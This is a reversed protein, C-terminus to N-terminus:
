NKADTDSQSENKDSNEVKQSDDENNGLAWDYMHSLREMKKADSRKKLKRIIIVLAVIVAVVILGVIVIKVIPNQPKPMDEDIPMEGEDPEPAPPENVYFKLPVEISKKEANADEYKVKVNASLDGPTNPTLIIDLSGNAGSMCNGVWVDNSLCDFGEGEIKAVINSTVAKGKNVYPISIYMEEGVTGDDIMTPPTIEFRDPQVVPISIAESTTGKVISKNNRYEYNFNITLIAAASKAEEWAKMSIKVPLSKGVGLKDFYFSNSSSAISIGEGTNLSMVINEVSINKSTNKFHLSLDFESGAEVKDGYDYKSIIINPTLTSGDASDGDKGTNAVAPITIRESDNGQAINGSQDYNYTVNVTMELSESDLNKATKIKVPLIYPEDFVLDKVFKNSSRSKITYGAAPTLTIKVNKAKVKKNINRIKVDVDYTKNAKVSPMKERIVQIIPAGDDNAADTKQAPLILTYNETGNAMGETGWFTYEFTAGIQINETTIKDAAKVKVDVTTSDMVPIGRQDIFYANSQDMIYLSDPMTLTLKGRIVSFAPSVNDLRLTLTFQDNAKIPQMDYRSLRIDPKNTFAMGDTSTANVNMPLLSCMFAAMIMGFIFINLKKIFGKIKM